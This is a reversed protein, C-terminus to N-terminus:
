GWACVNTALCVYGSVYIDDGFACIRIYLMALYVYEDGLVCIGIYLMADQCMVDSVCINTALCVYGSM